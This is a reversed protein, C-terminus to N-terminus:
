DAINKRKKKMRQYKKRELECHRLASTLVESTFSQYNQEIFTMAKPKSRPTKIMERLMWGVATGHFRWTSATLTQCVDLILADDFAQDSGVLKIFTVCAARKKWKDNAEKWEAFRHYEGTDQAIRSLVRLCLYDCTSWDYVFGQDFIEGLTDIDSPKFRSIKENLIFMGSLKDEAYSERLLALAATRLEAEGGDHADVVEFTCERVQPMKVGRYEIVHKLYAEFWRKTKMSSVSQLKKQIARKISSSAM